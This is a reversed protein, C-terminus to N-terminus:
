IREFMIERNQQGRKNEGATNKWAAFFSRATRLLAADELVFTAGHLTSRILLLAAQWPPYCTPHVPFQTHTSM